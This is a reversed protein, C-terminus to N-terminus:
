PEAPPDQVGAWLFSYPDPTDSYFCRIGIDPLDFEERLWGDMALGAVEPRYDTLPFDLSTVDICLEERHAALLAQSHLSLAVSLWTVDRWYLGSASTALWLNREIRIAGPPIGDSIVARASINAALGGVPSRLRYKFARM